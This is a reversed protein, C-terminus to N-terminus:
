FLNQQISDGRKEGEVRFRNALIHAQRSPEPLKYKQCCSLVIDVSTKVDIKFGPSVFVPEINDKTRVVAGIVRGKYVLPTNSGAELDPKKYEGVLRSKACGITPKDLLIGMHTAIGLGRQHAIGQGDFIILDPEQEIKEFAKLLPPGERFALLGPIYPFDITAVAEAREIVALSPYSFVLVAAYLENCGKSYSIDAGAIKDIKDFGNELILEERLQSQIKMAEQPPIDWQHLNRIRM